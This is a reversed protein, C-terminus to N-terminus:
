SSFSHAAETSAAQLQYKRLYMMLEIGDKEVRIIVGRVAIEARRGKKKKM